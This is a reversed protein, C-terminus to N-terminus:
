LPYEHVPSLFTILLLGLDGFSSHPIVLAISRVYEMFLFAWFNRPSDGPHLVSEAQCQKGESGCCVSNSQAPLLLLVSVSDLSYIPVM